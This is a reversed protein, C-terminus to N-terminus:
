IKKYVYVFGVGPFDHISEESNTYGKLFKQIKMQPDTLGTLYQFFYITDKGELVQKLNEIDDESVIFKPAVGFAQSTGKDYWQFPAFPEPFAFLVISKPTESERVFTVAQRWNERQIYPNTYYHWIGLISTILVIAVSVVKMRKRLKTIGLAIILYFLPLLFLLRQPAAIPIILSVAISAAFPISFLVLLIRGERKRLDERVCVLFLLIMPFLLIASSFKDSLPMKGLIFKAVTLPGTILSSSSVVSQWGVFLGNTGTKLQQIFYPYWPVFTSSIVILSIVFKKIEKKAFLLVYIIHSLFLFPAFYLSFLSGIGAMIYWIWKRSLLAYTAVLSFFVFVMYPRAEQSYWIHYPSLALFFAALIGANKQGFYEGLKYMLGITGLSFIVSLLRVWTESKGALMWFHLLLHYLPPHFDAIIDFQQGLSRASEIVQAAEDLWFSQDLHIFRLVGALFLIGILVRNKQLFIGFTNM